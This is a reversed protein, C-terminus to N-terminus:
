DLVDDKFLPKIKTEYCETCISNGTEHEWKVGEFQRKKLFHIHVIGEESGNYDFGRTIDKCCIPCDVTFNTMVAM